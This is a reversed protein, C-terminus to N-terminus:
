PAIEGLMQMVLLNTAVGLVCVDKGAPIVIPTVLNITTPAGSFLPYSFRVASASSPFVSTTNTGCNATANPNSNASDGYRIIYQGGTGTTSQAVIDTIYIREEIGPSASAPGPTCLTLTAGIGDVGCTWYRGRFLAQAHAPENMSPALFYLPAFLSVWLVLLGGIIKLRQAVRM